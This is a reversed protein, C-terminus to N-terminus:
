LSADGHVRRFWVKTGEPLDQAAIEAESRRAHDSVFKRGEGLDAEVRWWTDCEVGIHPWDDM